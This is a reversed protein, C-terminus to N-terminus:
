DPFETKDVNETHMNGNPVAYLTYEIIDYQRSNESLVTEEDSKYYSTDKGFKYTKGYWTQGTAYYLNYTGAPVNVTASNNAEVYFAVDNRKNKVNELYVYCNANIPANVTVEPHGFKQPSVIMEGNAIQVPELSVNVICSDKVVNNLMIDIRAIGEDRATLVGDYSVSVVSSNSSKWIIKNAINEYNTDYSLRNWDGVDMNIEEDVISVDYIFKDLLYERNIFVLIIILLSIIFFKGYKRAQFYQKGCSMCRSTEMDILNGCFKCYRVISKDVFM